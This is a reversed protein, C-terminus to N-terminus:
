GKGFLTRRHLTSQCRLIHRRTPQVRPARRRLPKLGSGGCAVHDRGFWPSIYMDERKKVQQLRLDGKKEVQSLVVVTAPPSITSILFFIPFEGQNPRSWTACPLKHSFGRRRWAGSERKLHDLKREERSRMIANTVHLFIIVTDVHFSYLIQHCLMLLKGSETTYMM